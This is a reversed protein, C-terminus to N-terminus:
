DPFSPVSDPNSIRQIFSAPDLPQFLGSRRLNNTIIGTVNRAAESDAPQGGVFDPLAIPLPQVNGQTVDLKLVADAPRIGAALLLSGGGLALARRRTLRFDPSIPKPMTPRDSM